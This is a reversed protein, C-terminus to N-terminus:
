ERMSDPRVYQTAGKSILVHRDLMRSNGEALRTQLLEKMEGETDHLWRSSSECQGMVQHAAAADVLPNSNNSRGM